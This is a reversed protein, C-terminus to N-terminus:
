SILLLRPPSERGVLPARHIGTSSDLSRRLRPRILRSKWEGGHTPPKSDATTRQAM